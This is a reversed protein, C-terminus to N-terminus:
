RDSEPKALAALLADALAVAYGAVAADRDANALLVQMAMAAFLERKTLGNAYVVHATVVPHAPEDPDTTTM